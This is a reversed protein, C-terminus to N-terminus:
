SRTPPSWMVVFCLAELLIVAHLARGSGLWSIVRDAVLSGALGGVAGSTMLVGFGVSGLGLVEQAYLVFIADTAAFMMNLMGLMVALTRILRHGWLWRLGEGIEQMLTTKPAGEPRRPRFSGGLAFVLAAAAAFTGADLLFPVAAATAFLFGGLPPGAFQNTVLQAAFLRGNAKELQDRKVVAPLIAQSANDFLTELAGVLFFVVYMLPLNAWGLLVAVGLVGILAARLADAVGMTLRRDLRDVLAGSLLSFILWPVRQAFALGAVLVPDRTLSAALLPGAVMTVGDGLNSVASATWLKWYRGGLGSAV